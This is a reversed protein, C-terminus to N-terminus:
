LSISTLDYWRPLTESKERQPVPPLGSRTLAGRGREPLLWAEAAEGGASEQDDVDRQYLVEIESGGAAVQVGCIM